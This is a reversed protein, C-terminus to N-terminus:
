RRAVAWFLFQRNAGIAACQMTYLVIKSKDNHPDNVVCSEFVAASVEPFRSMLTKQGVDVALFQLLNM